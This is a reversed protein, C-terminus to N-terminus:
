LVEIPCALSELNPIADIKLRSFMGQSAPIPSLGFKAFCLQGEVHLVTGCEFDGVGLDGIRVQSSLIFDSYLERKWGVTCGIACISLGLAARLIPTSLSTSASVFKDLHPEINGPSRDFCLLTFAFISFLGHVPFLWLFLVCCIQEVFREQVLSFNSFNCSVCKGRKQVHQM